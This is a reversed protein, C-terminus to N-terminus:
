FTVNLGLAYSRFFPYNWGTNNPNEADFYKFWMKNSEWLDQGTFFIRVKQIKLKNTLKPSITYGVQLNKLRIYAANQIWHTSVRGNFVATNDTTNYYYLRPFRANPNDPTWYDKQAEWPQRWSNVFPVLVRTNLLMDRKGVGQFFASFDFGKWEFGFNIGFTYRPSTNGLYKLDGHNAKTGAGTSITDNGDLDKYMIDGAANKSNQFAHKKVQDNSSFYGEDVFGFISNIPLGEIVTNVGESYVNQGQYRTVKNKNDAVNVNIFYSFKNIRDKWGLSTEWGWTRLSAGNTTRPTVGLVAPWNVTILMNKNARVFYDFSGTLRSKLLAFDTGINSSEVTEWGLGSSPLASQYYSPNIVNNFPYAPGSSLQAIYNYNNTNLAGLQANGLQGWSGRLKFENFFNFTNSFWEETNLRWGASFSPFWQGRHGPALRSSADNRLNAEFLYKDKFSYNLRGFYSVWANTQINDSVTYTSTASYVNLSPIDNSTLGAVKVSSANYNYYKYEFGGLVHFNHSLGIKWNYDGLAQVNHTFQTTRAKTIANTTNLYAAPTTALTWEPITRLFIDNNYQQLGPSYVLRLSLNKVFNEAKLTFVGNLNHQLMNNYGGDRLQQYTTPTTGVYAYKTDNSGPLFIPNRTTLSYINYFLGNDGGLTSSAAATKSFTYSLRSDLSFIDSFRQTINFRANYRQTGDPGVKFVGNQNYYGLALLYQTKDSGGSVAINHNESMTNNRLLVKTQDLDYYYDYLQANSVNAVYNTDPDRMWQIQQASYSKSVGANAQASDLMSAQEWSHLLKPLNYRHNFTTLNTYEVRTKGVSGKKTTVIIVGSAAKAGYIAAASADKLVSINDIDNPNILSLDGEVGDIIVLPNNTGNLSSFGRINLDYGEQGPQGSQRTVILGPAAGQLAAIANTVPRNELVAKNIVSVAGTLNAKKQTGYGVVVVDTLAGQKPKLIVSWENKGGTALEETQFNVSSFLLVAGPSVAISFRGAGNTQTGGGGKKVQVSIGELPKGAEDQVLGTITVPQAYLLFPFCVAALLLCRTLLALRRSRSKRCM